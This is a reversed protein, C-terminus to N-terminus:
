KRRDTWQTSQAADPLVPGPDQPGEKRKAGFYDTPNDALPQGKGGLAAKGAGTLRFDCEDPNVFWEKQLKEVNSKSEASAGSYPGGVLNNILTPETPSSAKCQFTKCNWALNNYFSCASSNKTHYAVDSTNIVINNRAIGGEHEPGVKDGVMPLWQKGTTGGGFSIGVTVQQKGADVLCGEIIGKKGGGKLFIGYCIGGGKGYAHAYCNRLVWNDGSVLDFATAATEYIEVHDLLVNDVAQERTRSAKMGHEGSGSIKCDILKVDGCGGPGDMFVAASVGKGSGEVHIGQIVWFKSKVRFGVQGSVKFKAYGKDGECRFTVPKEQTGSKGTRFSDGMDYEGPKVLITDGPGAAGLAQKVAAANDVKFEAASVAGVAAV